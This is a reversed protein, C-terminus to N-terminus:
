QESRSARSFEEYGAILLLFLFVLSAAVAGAVIAVLVRHRPLYEISPMAPALVRIDPQIQSEALRSGLAKKNILSYIDSQGELDSKIKATTWETMKELKEVEKHKENKLIFEETEFSKKLIAEEAALNNSLEELSYKGEQSRTFIEGHRKEQSAIEQEIRAKTQRAAELESRVLALRERLTSYVRNQEETLITKDKLADPMKQQESAIIAIATDTLGKGLVMKDPTSALEKELAQIEKEKSAIAIDADALETRLKTMLEKIEKLQIELLDLNLKKALDALKGAKQNLFDRLSEERRKNLERLATAEASMARSLQSKVMDFNVGSDSIRGSYQKEEKAYEADLFERIGTTGFKWYNKSAEVLVEAWANAYEAAKQSSEARVRMLLVPSYQVDVNTKKIVSTRTYMRERMTRVRILNGDNDLWKVKSRLTKLVPESSAIIEYDQVTLTRPMLQTLDDQTTKYPPPSLVVVSESEYLPTQLSKIGFAALAVVVFVGAILPLRRIMLNVLRFFTESSFIYASSDPTNNMSYTECSCRYFARTGFLLAQSESDKGSGVNKLWFAVLSALLFGLAQCLRTRRGFEHSPRTRLM